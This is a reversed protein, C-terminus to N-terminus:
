VILGKTNGIEFLKRREELPCRLGLEDGEMSLEWVCTNNKWAKVMINLWETTWELM